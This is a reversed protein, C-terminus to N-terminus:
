GATLCSGFRSFESQLAPFLQRKQNLPRPGQSGPRESLPDQDRLAGRKKRRGRKEPRPSSFGPPPYDGECWNTGMDADPRRPSCGRTSLIIHTLSTPLDSGYSRSFSQSQPDPWEPKSPFRTTAETTSQSHHTCKHRRKRPGADPRM